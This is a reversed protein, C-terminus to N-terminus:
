PLLHPRILTPGQDRLLEEFIQRDTMGQDIKKALYGRMHNPMGCGNPNCSALTYFHGTCRDGAVGCTCYINALFWEIREQRGRPRDIDPPLAAADVEAPPPTRLLHIRQGAALDALDVSHVVLRLQTRERWAQVNKVLAKIPPDAVLTVADGTQLSRAWRMTEHDLLLDMEGSFVHVFAVTGPLGDKKWRQQLAAKQEERRKNFGESSLILRASKGASQVYVKSGPQLHQRGIDLLRTKGVVPKIEIQGPPGDGKVVVVVREVTVGPGHIDQESTEDAIMSIAVPQKKRDMKFWVWVRDGLTFDNLRGWWGFVKIEGDPVLSWVKPMVEGEILLTVQSKAVDVAKLTAFHKPVSRLFEASGAIEKVKDNLKKADPQAPAGVPKKTEQPTAAEHLLLALVAVAAFRRIPKM